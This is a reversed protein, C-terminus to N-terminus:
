LQVAMPPRRGWRMTVGATRRYTDPVELVAAAMLERPQRSPRGVPDPVRLPFRHTLAYDHGQADRSGSYVQPRSRGPVACRCPWRM